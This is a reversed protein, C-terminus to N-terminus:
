TWNNITWASIEAGKQESKQSIDKEDPKPKRVSITPREKIKFKQSDRLDALSNRLTPTIRSPRIPEM